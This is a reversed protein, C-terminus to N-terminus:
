NGSPFRVPQWRFQVCQDDSAAGACSGSTTAGCDAAHCRCVGRTCRGPGRARLTDRYTHDPVHQSFADAMLHLRTWAAHADSAHGSQEAAIWRALVVNEIFHHAASTHDRVFALAGRADPAADFADRVSEWGPGSPPAPLMQLRTRAETTWPSNGDRAIYADWAARAEDRLGLASIVLARNFLAELRGPERALVREVVSLAAPLDDPRDARQAREYYAAALDNAIQLDDPAAASAIELTTIAEDLEGTVLAAIGLARRSPARYDHVYATRIASAATVLQLHASESRRRTDGPPPAYVSAGTLRAELPREAAAVDILTTLAQQPTRPARLGQIVLAVPVALALIAAVGAIALAPARTKERSWRSINEAFLPEPPPAIPRREWLADLADVEQFEVVTLAVARCEPCEALHSVVATREYESLTGDLFAALLASDPCPRHADM